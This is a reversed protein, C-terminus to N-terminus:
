RKELIDTLRDRETRLRDVYRRLVHNEDQALRFKQAYGETLQKQKELLDTLLAIRSPIAFPRMLM